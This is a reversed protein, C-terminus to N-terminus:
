SFDLMGCAANIDQGRSERIFCKYGKEMIKEKFYELRSSKKYSDIDNFEILNFNVNKAWDLSLLKQLDEDSDNVGVILAYAIMVGQKKHSYEHTFDVIKQISLAAPLLEKRKDDDSSHLSIAINYLKDKLKDLSIGITSLTMKKRSFAHEQNLIEIAREVSDFNLMPEGMGMFVISTIDGVEEKANLFQSVIEEPELNRSFGKTHCIKCKCTCGIQSSVCLAHKDNKTPIIVSSYGEEYKLLITGDNSVLKKYSM